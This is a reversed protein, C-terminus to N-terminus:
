RALKSNWTGSTAGEGQIPADEELWLQTGKFEYRLDVSSANTGDTLGLHLVNKGGAGRTLKWTTCRQATSVYYYTCSARGGVRLDLSALGFSM